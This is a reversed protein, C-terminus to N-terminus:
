IKPTQVSPASLPLPAPTRPGSISCRGFLVFGNPRPVYCYSGDSYSQKRLCPYPIGSRSAPKKSLHRDVKLRM